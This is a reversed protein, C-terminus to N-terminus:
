MNTSASFVPYFFDSPGRCASTCAYLRVMKYLCAGLGSCLCRARCRTFIYCPSIPASTSLAAGKRDTTWGGLISYHLLSLSFLCWPIHLCILQRKKKKKKGQGVDKCMKRETIKHLLSIQLMLHSCDQLPM